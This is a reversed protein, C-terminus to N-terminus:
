CSMYDPAPGPVPSIMAAFTAGYLVSADFFMVSFVLDKASQRLSVRDRTCWCRINLRRQLALGLQAVAAQLAVGERARHRQLAIFRSRPRVGPGAGECVTM